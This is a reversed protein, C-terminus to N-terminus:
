MSSCLTSSSRRVYVGATKKSETRAEHADRITGATPQLVSTLQQLFCEISLRDADAGKLMCDLCAPVAAQQVFVQDLASVSFESLELLALLCQWPLLICRREHGGMGPWRVGGMALGGSELRGGRLWWLMYWDWLVHRLRRRLGLKHGSRVRGLIGRCSGPVHGGWSRLLFGRLLLVHRCRCNWLLLSSGVTLRLLTRSWLVLRRTWLLPSCRLVLRLGEARLLIWGLLM